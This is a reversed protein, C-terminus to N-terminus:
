PKPEVLDALRKVEAALRAVNDAITAVAGAQGQMEAHVDAQRQVIMPVAGALAELTKQVTAVRVDLPDAPVPPAQVDDALQQLTVRIRGVIQQADQHGFGRSALEDLDAIIDQQKDSM